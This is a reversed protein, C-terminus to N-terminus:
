PRLLLVLAVGAAALLVVVLLTLVLTRRRQRARALRREEPSAPLPPAAPRRSRKAAKPAQPPPAERGELADLLEQATQYRKAPDKAMLRQIVHRLLPPVHPAATDLPPLEEHLIKMMVAATSPADFPSRGAVAHYFTAGLSYLDSRADAAQGQAVEPPMYLPTGLRSGPATVDIDVGSRKALGFDAVKAAGDAALLINGPKIDRHVIGLRQAAALASATQKLLDLAAAPPLPGGRALRKSLTEGEVYEMVIFSYGKDEGVDFVQIVNAHNIAAAARGERRFREVFSPDRAFARPLVKLACVRGLSQHQAKYVAGMAGRGILDQIEYPGLTEGLLADPKAGGGAAAPVRLRAGCRPCTVVGDASPGCAFRESCRPCKAMLKVM